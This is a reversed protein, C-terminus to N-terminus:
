DYVNNSFSKLTNILSYSKADNFGFNLMLNKIKSMKSISDSLITIGEDGIYNEVFGLNLYELNPM